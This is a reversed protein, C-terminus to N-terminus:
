FPRLNPNQDILYKLEDILIQESSAFSPQTKLSIIGQRNLAVAFRRYLSGVPQRESRIDLTFGKYETDVTNGTLRAQFAFRVLDESIEEQPITNESCLLALIDVLGLISLILQISMSLNTGIRLLNNSTSKSTSIFNQTKERKKIEKEITAKTAMNLSFSGIPIPIYGSPPPVGAVGPIVLPTPNNELVQLKIQGATAAVQAVAAGTTIINSTIYLNNLARVLQNKQELVRQIEQKTPCLKKLKEGTKYDPPINDLTLQQLTNLNQTTFVKTFDASKLSQLNADPIAQDLLDIAFPQLLKIAVPLLQKKIQINAENLAQELPLGPNNAQDLTIETPTQQRYAISTVSTPLVTPPQNTVVPQINRPPLSVPSAQPNITIDTAM